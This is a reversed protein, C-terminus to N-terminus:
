ATFTWTLPQSVKLGSYTNGATNDLTVAFTFNTSVGAAISSVDLATLLNQTATFGTMTGDYVTVDGTSVKVKMKACLDTATGNATGNASQTCKGPALTFGTAAMTGTNKISVTTSVTQNPAMLLNGGYKNISSCTAANGTVGGDSTSTCTVDGGSNKEEMVLAGTGANNTDNNISATFTAFAPSMSLAVLVSGIAGALIVPLGFNRRRSRKRTNPESSATSM